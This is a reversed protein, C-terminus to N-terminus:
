GALDRDPPLVLLEARRDGDGTTSNMRIGFGRCSAAGCSTGTRWRFEFTISSLPCPVVM